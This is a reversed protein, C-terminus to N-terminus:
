DGAGSIVIDRGAFMAADSVKYHLQRGAIADAGRLSWQRPLFSGVGGAGIV